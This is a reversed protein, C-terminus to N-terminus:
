MRGMKYLRLLGYGTTGGGGGTYQGLVLIETGPRVPIERTRRTDLAGFVLQEEAIQQNVAGAIVSNVAVQEVANTGDPRERIELEVTTPAAVAVTFDIVATDAEGTPYWQQAAAAAPAPVHAAPGAAM